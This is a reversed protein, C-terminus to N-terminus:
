RGAILVQYLALIRRVGEAIARATLTAGTIGAIDRGPILSDGLSKKEFQKLWQDKPLYEQPEYFALVLTSIVRGEPSLVVMFAEPLTRVIHVDIVAYGIVKQAKKGIYFTVLKSDLKARALAEVRKVLAETLIFTKKEVSTADPFATKLAEEKAYFVKAAAGGGLAGLCLILVCLVRM